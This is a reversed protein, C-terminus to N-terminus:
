FWTFPFFFFFCIFFFFIDNEISRRKKGVLCVMFFTGFFLVLKAWMCLCNFLHNKNEMKRENRQLKGDVLSIMM